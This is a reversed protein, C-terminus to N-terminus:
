DIFIIRHALGNRMWFKWGVCVLRIIKLCNVEVFSKFSLWSCLFTKKRISLNAYVLEKMNTEVSLNELWIRIECYQRCHNFIKPSCWLAVYILKFLIHKLWLDALLCAGHWREKDCRDFLDECKAMSQLAEM